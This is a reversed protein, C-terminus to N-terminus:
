TQKGGDLGEVQLYDIEFGSVFVQLSLQLLHVHLESKFFLGMVHM